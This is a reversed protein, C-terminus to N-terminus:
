ELWTTCTKPTIHAPNLSFFCLLKPCRRRGRRWAKVMRRCSSGM